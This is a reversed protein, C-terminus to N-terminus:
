VLCSFGLSVCFVSSLFPKADSCMQLLCPIEHDDEISADCKFHGEKDNGTCGAREEEDDFLTCANSCTTEGDPWLLSLVSELYGGLFCDKSYDDVIHLEEQEKQIRDLEETMKKMRIVSPSVSQGEGAAIDNSPSFPYVQRIFLENVNDRDTSGRSPTFGNFPGSDDTKKNPQLDNISAPLRKLMKM